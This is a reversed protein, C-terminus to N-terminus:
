DMEGGFNEDDEADEWDGQGDVDWGSSAGATAAPTATTTGATATATAAPAPTPPPPHALPFALLFAGGPAATFPNGNAGAANNNHAPGMPPALYNLLAGAMAAPLPQGMQGNVAVTAGGHGMAFPGIHPMFGDDNEDMYEGLNHENQFTTLRKSIKDHGEVCIYFGRESSYERPFSRPVYESMADEDPIPVDNQNQPVAGVPASHQSNTTFGTEWLGNTPAQLEPMSEDTSIDDDDDLDDEPIWDAFGPGFGQPADDADARQELFYSKHGGERLYMLHLHELKEINAIAKLVPPWSGASVDVCYFRLDIVDRLRTISKTLRAADVSLGLLHLSTLRSMDIGSVFKQYVLGSGKKVDFDLSLSKLNSFIRAFKSLMEKYGKREPSSLHLHLTTTNRFVETLGSRLSDDFSLQKLPNIFTLDSSLNTHFEDLSVHGRADALANLITRWMHRLHERFPREIEM